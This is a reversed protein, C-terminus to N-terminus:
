FEPGYDGGGGGGGSYVGGAVGIENGSGCDVYM